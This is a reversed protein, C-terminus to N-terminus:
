SVVPLLHNSQDMDTQQIRKGDVVFSGNNFSIRQGELALVRVLREDSKDLPNDILVVQGQELKGSFFWCFSGMPVSSEMDTTAIRKSSGLFLFLLAITLISIRKLNLPIKM